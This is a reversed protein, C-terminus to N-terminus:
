RRIHERKGKLEMSEIWSDTLERISPYKRSGVVLNQLYFSVRVTRKQCKEKVKRAVLREDKGVEIIGSAMWASRM